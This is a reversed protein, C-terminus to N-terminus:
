PAKYIFNVLEVRTWLPVAGPRPPIALFEERLLRSIKPSYWISQKFPGSAPVTSLPDSWWGNCDVRVTDFTGAPVTVVEAGQVVCTADRYGRRHPAPIKEFTHTGGAQMPFKLPGGCRVQDSGLLSRCPEWNRTYVSTFGTDVDRLHYRDAPGGVLEVRWSKGVQLNTYPDVSRYEAIEGMQASPMPVPFQVQAHAAIPMLALFFCNALLSLIKMPSKQM